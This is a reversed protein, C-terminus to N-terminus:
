QVYFLQEAHLGCPNQTECIVQQADYGLNTSCMAIPPMGTNM